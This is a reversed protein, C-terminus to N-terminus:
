EPLPYPLTLVEADIMPASRTAQPADTADAGAAAGM